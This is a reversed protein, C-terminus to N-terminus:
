RCAPLLSRWPFIPMVKSVTTTAERGSRVPGINRSWDSLTDVAFEFIEHGKETTAFTADGVVGSESFSSWWEILGVPSTVAPRFFGSPPIDYDRVAKDMQLRDEALHLCLSTECECAHSIPSEVIKNVQDRAISLYMFSTSLAETEIITKRAVLELLATNPGHGSVLLIKRFGSYDLGSTIDLLHKIM